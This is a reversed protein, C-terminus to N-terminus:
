LKVHNIKYRLIVVRMGRLLHSLAAGDCLFDGERMFKLGNLM